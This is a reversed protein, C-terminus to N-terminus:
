RNEKTRSARDGGFRRGFFDGRNWRPRKSGNAVEMGLRYDFEALQAAVSFDMPQKLDDTPQHYRARLWQRQLDLLHVDASRARYGAIPFVAPIGRKIFPYQDSRVLVVEAPFPDPSVELKMASAARAAATGLSSNGSGIVTVDRVPAFMMIMDININAVVAGAPVTPNAAFYDAGRFGKEEATTGVFVISRRPKQPSESFARAVEIMAAVGSANDFAGNYIADGNVAEATGVHDIHSTYVLFEDRLRPDAGRFLGVVNASSASSHSSLIRLSMMVPLDFSRPKGSEAERIVTHRPLLAKAFLASIAPENLTLTTSLSENVGAPKGNAQLWHMSGARAQHVSTDWSTRDLDEPLRMFAIASAGHAAANEIKTSTSSFHARLTDPFDKPAGTFCLVIKGTADIGAYDDYDREPSTVGFGAYVVPGRIETTPKLPDGSTVFGEAFHFTSSSGGMPTLTIMSSGGPRTVRFAINQFYSDGNGPALGAAEFQAAVYAAGLDYGRTGTGRGELLDNALFNMHARIADARFTQGAAGVAALLCGAFLLKRM